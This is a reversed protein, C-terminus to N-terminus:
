TGDAVIEFSFNVLTITDGATGKQVTITITTASTTDIAAVAAMQTTGTANDHLNFANSVQANTANANAISGTLTSNTIGAVNFTSLISGGIKVRLTKANANNTYTLNAVYKIFGNAGLANAPVTITAVTNENTDAPASVAAGSKALSRVTDDLTVNRDPVTIVRTTGTTIGDAELRAKKTSDSSGQVIPHTDLFPANFGNAIIHFQTGDYELLAPISARLEGGVCAAGNWFVSKATLASGGSPTINLTTAGTNTNAPYLCVKLGAYLAIMTGPAAATITNTGAASTLYVPSFGAVATVEYAVGSQAVTATAAQGPALTMTGNTNGNLKDTATILGLTVTGTGKNYVTVTYGMSQAIMTAADGLSITISGTAEITTLHDGAVTTYSGSTTSPTVNLATRLASNVADALTKVPDTIASKIKAWTIKNAAVTTGDDPPPSSNYGSASQSSYASGM